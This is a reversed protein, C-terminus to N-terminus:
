ASPPKYLIDKAKQMAEVAESATLVPTGKMSSVAGGAMVAMGVAEASVEDPIQSLCYITDQGVAFYYEEVDGGLAKFVPRLAEARDQPNKIMSGFAEGTVKVEFLYRTM